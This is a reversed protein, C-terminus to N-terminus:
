GDAPQLTASVEGLRIRGGSMGQAWAGIRVVFDAVDFPRLLEAESLPVLHPEAAPRGKEDALMGSVKARTARWATSGRAMFPNLSPAAFEPDGLAGALDLVWEGVRVGVRPPADGRVFVGYPLNDAGYGAGDAGPVWTTRM